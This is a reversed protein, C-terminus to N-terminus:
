EVPVCVTCDVASISPHDLCAKLVEIREPCVGFREAAWDVVAEKGASREWPPATAVRDGDVFVAVETARDQNEFAEM